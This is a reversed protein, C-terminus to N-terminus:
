PNILHGSHEFGYTLSKPFKLSLRLWSGLCLTAKMFFPLLVCQLKVSILLSPVSFLLVCFHITIVLLSLLLPTPVECLVMLDGKCIEPQCKVSMLIGSVQAQPDYHASVVDLRSLLERHCPHSDARPQFDHTM